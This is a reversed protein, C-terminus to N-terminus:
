LYVCVCVCVCVDKPSDIRTHCLIVLIASGSQATIHMKIFVYVHATIHLKIFLYMCM